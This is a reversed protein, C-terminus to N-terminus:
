VSKSAVSAHIQPQMKMMSTAVGAAFLCMVLSSGGASVFPLPVGMVPLLGIVVMINVLAQVVIWVAICILVRSAYKNPTQLAIAFMCWGLIAFLIVVGAAGVFGTEEGIIAFIFDNHAEPLYSWKERSNGIGVGLFGGSAMAFKAHMSQYCEGRPQVIPCPRFAAMVRLMRNPSTAVALVVFVLLVLGAGILWKLPFGGILMATVGIAVLILATGLDGGLMVTGLCLVFVVIMPVYAKFGETKYHRAALVVAWPMWLCLALKMVEAPQMTFKNPIGIWGKNGNVEVGLPTVTLLQLFISFVVFWFSINRYRESHVRMALLCVVVGIVCYLGQSLAQKWPSLDAAIMTVSSASFVMIVGFVTLAFVAGHFGHYCWLPNLLSRIGSYDAVQIIDSSDTEPPDATVPASLGKMKRYLTSIRSKPKEDSAYSLRSESTGTRSVSSM